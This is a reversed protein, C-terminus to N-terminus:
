AALGKHAPVASLSFLREDFVEQVCGRLRCRQTRLEAFVIRLACSFRDIARWRM